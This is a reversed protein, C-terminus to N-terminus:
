YKGRTPSTQGTPSSMRLSWLRPLLRNSTSHHFKRPWPFVLCSLCCDLVTSLRLINVWISHLYWSLPWVLWCLFRLKICYSHCILHYSFLASCWRVSLGRAEGHGHSPLPLRHTRDRQVLQRHRPRPQPLAQWHPRPQGAIEPRPRAGAPEQRPQVRERDHLFDSISVIDLSLALLTISHPRCLQINHSNRM